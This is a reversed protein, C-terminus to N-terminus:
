SHLENTPSARIQSKVVLGEPTPPEPDTVAASVGRDTGMDRQTVACEEWLTKKLSSFRM